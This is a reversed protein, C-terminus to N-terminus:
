LASEHTSLSNNAGNLLNIKKDSLVRFIEDQFDKKNEEEKKQTVLLYNAVINARFDLL